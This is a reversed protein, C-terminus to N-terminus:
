RWGVGRQAASCVGQLHCSGQACRRCYSGVRSAAMETLVTEAKTIVKSLRKCIINVMEHGSSESKLLSMMADLNWVDAYLAGFAEAASFLESQEESLPLEGDGQLMASLAEELNEETASGTADSCVRREEERLRHLVHCIKSADKSFVAVDDGHPGVGLLDLSEAFVAYMKLAQKDTKIRLDEAVQLHEQVYRFSIKIQLHFGFKPWLRKTMDLHTELDDIKMLQFSEKTLQGAHECEEIRTELLDATSTMKNARLNKEITKAGTLAASNGRSLKPDNYLFNESILLELSKVGSGKPTALHKEGVKKMDEDLNKLQDAIPDKPGKGQKSSSKVTGDASAAAGGGKGKLTKNKKPQKSQLQGGQYGVAKVVPIDESDSGGGGEAPQNAAASAAKASKQAEAQQNAEVIDKYTPPPENAPNLSHGRLKLNLGSVYAFVADGQNAHLQSSESLYLDQRSAASGYHIRVKRMGLAIHSPISGLSIGFMQSDGSGSGPGKWPIAFAINKVKSDNMSDQPKKGFLAFFEQATLAGFDQFVSFGYQTTNSIECSPSFSPVTGGSVMGDYVKVAGDFQAAFIEDKIGFGKENTYVMVLFVLHQNKEIDPCPRLALAVWGCRYCVAHQPDDIFSFTVGKKDSSRGCFGCIYVMKSKKAPPERVVMQTEEKPTKPKKGTSAM